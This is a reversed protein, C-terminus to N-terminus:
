IEYEDLIVQLVTNLTINKIGRVLRYLDNTSIYQSMAYCSDLYVVKIANFYGTNYNYDYETHKYIDIDVLMKYQHETFKCLQFSSISTIFDENQKQNKLEENLANTLVKTAKLKM